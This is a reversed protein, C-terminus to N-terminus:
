VLRTSLTAMIASFGTLSKDNAVFLDMKGDLDFDATAAGMGKGPYSRLGWEALM